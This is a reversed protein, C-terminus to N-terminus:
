PRAAAPSRGLVTSDIGLRRQAALVLLANWVVISTGSAVAAGTMGFPPILAANLIVNVVASVAFGRAADREHGTMTLCAGVSGAAGNVVQAVSLIALAAAGGAFDDGFIILFMDGFLIFAAALPLSFILILRSTRTALAQIGQLDGAAYLAAIRPAVAATVAFLVFSILGAGRAAVTYVGAAAPGQLAGLMIIDAQRNIVQSGGIFLLPLASAYWRRTDFAANVGALARPLRRWLLLLGAVLAALTALVNMAVAWTPEFAAGRLWVGMGVMLIVLIPAVALEPVFGLGIHGLGRMTAQALRVLALLPVLLMALWFAVMQTDTGGAMSAAVLGAALAIVVSAVTVTQFARVLYGRLLGWAKLRLFAAVHRVTLTEMGFLAPIALLVAWAMAYSYIGFGEVGLIRALMVSILFTAGADGVKLGFTAGASRMLRGRLPAPPTLRGRRAGEEGTSPPIALEPPFTTDDSM